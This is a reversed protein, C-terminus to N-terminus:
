FPAQFDFLLRSYITHSQLAALTRKATLNDGHLSKIMHSNDDDKLRRGVSEGQFTIPKLLMFYVNNRGLTPCAAWLMKCYLM